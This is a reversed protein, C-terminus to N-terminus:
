LLRSAYASRLMSSSRLSLCYYLRTKAVFTDGDTPLANLGSLFERVEVGYKLAEIEDRTIPRVGQTGLERYHGDLPEVITGGRSLTIKAWPESQLEGDRIQATLATAHIYYVLATNQRPPWLDPFPLWNNIRYTWKRADASFFQTIEKSLPTAAWLEDIRPKDSEFAPPDCLLRL